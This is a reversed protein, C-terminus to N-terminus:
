TIYATEIEHHHSFFIVIAKHVHGKSLYYHNIDLNNQM